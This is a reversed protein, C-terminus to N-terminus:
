RPGTARSTSAGTVCGLVRPGRAGTAAPVNGPQGHVTLWGLYAFTVAEKADGNFFEDDFSRVDWESLLASLRAFLVPNRSGGGSVLLERTGDGPIWRAFQDAITRAVFEVATAVADDDDRDAHDRVRSLIDVAVGDGFTERGTSKPPPVRYYEHDLLEAVVAEVARGAAARAGDVDFAVHPDLMRAVGDIVTVGPGTDFAALGDVAGRRPVWTVNAIGGINLLARGHHPHGFLMVDAIPVLPAGQGGAAVDRSRFDSVVRIDTREAIVSPNGLQFSARGPEHWITQGHSGILSVASPDVGERELLGIVAAGFREGLVIDLEALDRAVGNNIAALISERDVVAYPLTEFALLKVSQADHVEVLAVDVGDLSTGSMVGVALDSM